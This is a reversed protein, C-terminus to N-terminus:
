KEAFMAALTEIDLLPASVSVMIETYADPSWQGGIIYDMMGLPNTLKRLMYLHCHELGTVALAEDMGKVSIAKAMQYEDLGFSYDSAQRMDVNIVLSGNEEGSCRFVLHYGSVFLDKEDFAYREVTLGQPLLEKDTLRIAGMDHCSYEIHGEILTYGEPVFAMLPLDDIGDMLAAFAEMTDVYRRIGSESGTASREERREVVVLENHAASNLLSWELEAEAELAPQPPMTPAAHDNLFDEEPMENGKWNVHTGLLGAAMAVSLMSVILVLVLVFNMSVKKVNKEGEEAHAVVRQYLFSDGQIGSLTEDIAQQFREHDNLKTM